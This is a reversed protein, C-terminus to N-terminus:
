RKTRRKEILIKAIWALAILALFLPWLLMVIIGRRARIKLRKGKVVTRNAWEYIIWGVCAWIVGVELITLEESM